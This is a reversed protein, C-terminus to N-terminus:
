VNLLKLIDKSPKILEDERVKIWGLQFDSDKNVRKGRLWEFKGEEKYGEFKKRLGIETAYYFIQTASYCTTTHIEMIQLANINNKDAFNIKFQTFDGVNFKSKINM